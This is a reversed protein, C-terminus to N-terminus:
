RAVYAAWRDMVEVRRDYVDSRQYAGAVGRVTHALAAEAVEKDIGVDAAWSRFATRFGHCTTPLGKLPLGM